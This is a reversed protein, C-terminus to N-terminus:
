GDDDRHVRDALRVLWEIIQRVDGPLALEALRDDNLRDRLAPWHHCFDSLDRLQSPDIDFSHQPPNSKNEAM